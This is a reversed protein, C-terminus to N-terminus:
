VKLKPKKPVETSKGGSEAFILGILLKESLGFKKAAQSIDQEYQGIRQCKGAQDDFNGKMREIKGNVEKKEDPTLNHFFKEEVNEVVEKESKLGAVELGGRGRAKKWEPEATLDRFLKHAAGLGVGVLGAKLITRRSIKKETWKGKKDGAQEDYEKEAM